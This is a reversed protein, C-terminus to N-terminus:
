PPTVECMGSLARRWDTARYEKARSIADQRRGAEDAAFRWAEHTSYFVWGGGLLESLPRPQIQTEEGMLWEYFQLMAIEGVVAVVKVQYQFKGGAAIHEADTSLSHAWLGVLPHPQPAAIGDVAGAIALATAREREATDMKAWQASRRPSKV